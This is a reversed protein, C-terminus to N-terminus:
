HTTSREPMQDQVSYFQKLLEHHLYKCIDFYAQLLQKPYDTVIAATCDRKDGLLLIGFQSVVSHHLCQLIESSDILRHYDKDVFLGGSENEDIKM